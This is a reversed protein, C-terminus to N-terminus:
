KCTLLHYGFLDVSIGCNPTCKQINSLAPLSAGLRILAATRFQASTLTFHRTSPIAELWSCANLDSSSILRAKEKDPSCEDLYHQFSSRNKVLQLRRQLKKPHDPLSSISFIIEKLSQSDIHLDHLYSNFHTSISYNSSKLDDTVYSCMSRVYDDHVPIRSM